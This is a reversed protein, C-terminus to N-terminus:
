AVVAVMREPGRLTIKGCTDRQNADGRRMEDKEAPPNWTEVIVCARKM